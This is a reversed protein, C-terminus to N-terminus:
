LLDSTSEVENPPWKLLSVLERAWQYLGPAVGGGAKVGKLLVRTQM